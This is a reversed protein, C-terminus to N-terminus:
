GVKSLAKSQPSNVLDLVMWNTHLDKVGRVSSGVATRCSPCRRQEEPLALLSEMCEACVTHGCAPLVLPRHRCGDFGCGHIPCSPEM